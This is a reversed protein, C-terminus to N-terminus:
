KPRVHLGDANKLDPNIRLAKQFELVAENHLGKEKYAISLNYYLMYNKPDIKLAEKYVEIANDFLGKKIYVIGLNNLIDLDHPDIKLAGEYSSIALDWLGMNHYALGLNYYVSPNDPNNKLAEKYEIIAQDLLGKEAYDYALNVHARFSNPSQKVTKSWLTYNSRWDLNRNITLGSYLGMIVILLLIAMKEPSQKIFFAKEGIGMLKDIVAAIVLCFGASPLYLFREAVFYHTLPFLLNSLPFLTIFFWAMGFSVAKSLTYMRITLIFFIFLSTLSVLVKWEFLSHSLPVMHAVNLNIPFFLLQIYTLLAKCATYFYTPFSQQLFLGAVKPEPSSPYILLIFRLYLLFILIILGYPIYYWSNKKLFNWLKPFPKLNQRSGHQKSFRKGKGPSSVEKLPTFYLDYLILIVPLSVVAAEKSFLALVFSIISFFYLWQSSKRLIYFSFSWTFFFMALLETRNSIATVAETHIPHTAFLLATILPIRSNIFIKTLLFYLSITCLAHLILNTLHYGFPNLGWIQYETLLIIYKIGRPRQIFSFLNSPDRLERNEVIHSIDDFVFDNSLTNIYPIASIFILVSIAIRHNKNTFFSGM